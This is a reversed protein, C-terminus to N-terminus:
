VQSIHGRSRVLADTNGVRALQVMGSQRWCVEGVVDLVVVLVEHADVVVALDLGGTDINIVSNADEM